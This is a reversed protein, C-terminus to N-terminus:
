FPSDSAPIEKIYYNRLYPIKMLIDQQIKPIGSTYFIVTFLAVGGFAGAKFALPFLSKATLGFLQPQFQYKPAYPSHYGPYSEKPISPFPM